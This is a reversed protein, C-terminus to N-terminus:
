SFLKTRANSEYQTYFYTILYLDHFDKLGTTYRNLKYYLVGTISMLVVTKCHNRTIQQIEQKPRLISPYYVMEVM